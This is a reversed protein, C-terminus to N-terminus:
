GDVAGAAGGAGAAGEPSACPCPPYTAVIRGDLTVVTNGAQDTAVSAGNPVEHVCESPLPGGPTPVTPGCRGHGSSCAAVALGICVICGRLPVRGITPARWGFVAVAQLNAFPRKQSLM